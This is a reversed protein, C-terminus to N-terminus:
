CGLAKLFNQLGVESDIVDVNFGLARLERHVILQRSTPKKGTTKIEVFFIKGGPMLIMRDPLGTYYQSQLKVAIGNLKGVGMRLKKEIQKEGM